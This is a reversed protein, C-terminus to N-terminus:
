SEAGEKGEDQGEVKIKLLVDGAAVQGGVSVNVSEIEGDFPATIMNVIKMAELVVVVDDKAVRDGPQVNVEKVQGVMPAKLLGDALGADSAPPAYTVDRFHDVRGELSLYLDNEVLAFHATTTHGADHLKLVGEACQDIQISASADGHTLSYVNGNMGISLLYEQDKWALKVPVTANGTSRWGKLLPSVKAADREIFVAAAALLREADPEAVQKDLLGSLEIFNTKANGAAFTADRLIDALFDANTHVGLVVSERLAALLHERAEDRSKGWGIVKAIMADYFPTVQAGDRLGHDVRVSSNELPRWTHITGIQPAYNNAPDEAYLRLEIAHGYLFVEEQKLPLPKGQAVALQLSVLDLGTVLETVPHEVQLRTNMELFYFNGDDDLLFEVTGANTYGVSRAANVAAAGMADRLEPTMVPCPSEEIIKQHRRQVSCDREGLHICNGHEDGFVQIEVHRAHEVLKEIILTDSGFASKAETRATALAESLEAASRVARMGRGGGGAAAKLLVPYGIKEVEAKLTADDQAEGEYGPVCPVGAKRVLRKAAAKDGMADIASAPPGIFTIGAEKCAAAFGANESLFGYGPHIADAGSKKAADIIKEACLYSEGVPAQGIRVSQDAMSVHLAGADADSYVAVTGYGEAKATRMVRCAIEGRNAVLIKSFRRSM